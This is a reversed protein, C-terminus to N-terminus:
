DRWSSKAGFIRARIRKSLFKWKVARPIADDSDYPALKAAKRMELLVSSRQAWAEFHAEVVIQDEATWNVLHPTDDPQSWFDAHCFDVLAARLFRDRTEVDPWFAEGRCHALKSHAHNSAAYYWRVLRESASMGEVARKASLVWLAARASVSKRDAKADEFEPVTLGHLELFTPMLGKRVAHEFCWVKAPGFRQEFEALRAIYDFRPAFKDLWPLFELKNDTSVAQEKFMSEALLDPRRLCVSVEVTLGKFYDAVRGMFCVRAANPDDPLGAAVQRYFPEASIIVDEGQSLAQELRLRYDALVQKDEPEFSALRHALGHHAYKLHGLVGPWPDYSIGCEKLRSRQEFLARQMGTTGTKHTGIHLIIRAM